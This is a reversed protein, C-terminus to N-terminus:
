RLDARRAGLLVGTAGKVPRVYWYHLGTYFAYDAHLHEAVFRDERGDTYLPATTAVAPSLSAGLFRLLM